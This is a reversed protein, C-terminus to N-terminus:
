GGQKDNALENLADEMETHIEERLLQNVRRYIIEFDLSDYDHSAINRAAHLRIQQFNPMKALTEERLKKRLEYVNTLAQSVALQCVDSGLFDNLTEIGFATYAKKISGIHKMIRELCEIDTKASLKM